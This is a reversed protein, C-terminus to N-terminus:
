RGGHGDEPEPMCSASFEQFGAAHRVGGDGLNYAVTCSEEQAEGWKIRVRGAQAPLRVLAQGAQAVYGLHGGQEDMVAAGFPLVGGAHDVITMLVSHGAVTEFRVLAIAGATPALNRSTEKVAIDTSIGKPDIEVTNQRYPSLYPVIARGRSDLRVGSYNTIRAGQAGPAEVLAATEGLMPGMVVGGAYAVVGGSVSASFQRYDKGASASAGVNAFPASWSASAGATTVRPGPRGQVTSAFVNYGYQHDDGATGSLATQAGQSYRDRSYTASLNPARATSGLPVALTLMIQNNWQGTELLRTRGASVGYNVQGIRNNYQLQFETDAGTGGWYDQRSANASIAGWSGPLAQSLSLQFRNRRNKLSTFQWPTDDGAFERLLFADNADYFGASSYRYAALALSTQTAPLIKSYGLRISHGDHRGADGLDSRAYTIDSSIAGFQTNLAIGSAAAQYGQAALVGGYGTVVNSFGHRLTGMFLAPTDDVVNNRYQGAMVSYRTVGPRLLEPMAAYAVTFTSTSGDAETVAVRLDGGAGTPYLDDIVFPGPPVTTEYILNGQQTISVRANSRAIGQVVPAFGRQSDPYMRDESALQVGRFGLSDFVQGDTMADGVTFRSRWSAIGREAYAALGQYSTGRGGGANLASRYRLRWKGLNLGGRLGLYHSTDDAAGALSSESRYGLYDYQLMGATVGDEWLAPDVYGRAQRRLLSQPATITLRLEGSDFAARAGPVIMHLPQCAPADPSSARLGASYADADFGLTDLLAADFCPQAGGAEGAPVRFTMIHRGKWTDNVIVDVSHEGAPMLTEQSFMRIDVPSRLFAEDFEVDAQGQAGWSALVAAMGAAWAGLCGGLSRQKGTSM